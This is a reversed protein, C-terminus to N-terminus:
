NQIVIFQSLLLSNCQFKFNVIFLISEILTGLKHTIQYDKWLLQEPTKSGTKQGLQALKSYWESHISIIHKFLDRVKFAGNRLLCSEM